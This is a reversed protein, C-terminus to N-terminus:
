FLLGPLCTAIQPLCTLVVVAALMIVWYPMSSAFIEM